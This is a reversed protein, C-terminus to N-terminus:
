AKEPFLENLKHGTIRAIAQQEVHSPYSRMNMWRYFTAVNRKTKDEVKRRFTIKEKDTLSNFYDQITM